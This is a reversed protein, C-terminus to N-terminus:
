AAARQPLTPFAVVREGGDGGGGEPRRQWDGCFRSEHTEPFISAPIHAYDAVTPAHRQCTGIAQSALPDRTANALRPGMRHWFGCTACTRDCGTLM